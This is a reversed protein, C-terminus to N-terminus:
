DKIVVFFWSQLVTFTPISLDGPYKELWNVTRASAKLHWGIIGKKRNIARFLSVEVRSFSINKRLFGKASFFLFM